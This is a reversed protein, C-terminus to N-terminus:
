VAVANMGNAKAIAIIRDSPVETCDQIDGVSMNKKLMRVVIEEKAEKKQEDLEKSFVRRVAETMIGEEEIEKYLEENVAVSVRLIASVYEAMRDDGGVKSLVKLVDEKKANKALIKFEEYEGQPLRSAIVVQVPVCMPGSVHYIGPHTEQVSFGYTQLAEFMERPFSHRFLSVTLEELPISNVTKGLGKYILAYGAAKCFADINLKDDPSKYEIVNHTKFFSGIPDSLPISEQKILLMDMRVPEDGLDHEQKYEMKVNTPEYVAHVAGYFGNHYEVQGTEEKAGM